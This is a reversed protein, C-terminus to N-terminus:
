RIQKRVWSSTPLEGPQRLGVRPRSLHGREDTDRPKGLATRAILAILRFTWFVLGTAIATIGIGIFIIPAPGIDPATKDMFMWVVWGFVAIQFMFWLTQRGTKNIRNM